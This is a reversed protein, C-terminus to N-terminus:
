QGNPFASARRIYDQYQQKFVPSDPVSYHKRFQEYTMNKPPSVKDVVRDFQKDKLKAASRGIKSGIRSAAKAGIGFGISSAAANLAGQGINVGFAVWDGSKWQSVADHAYALNADSYAKAAEAVYKKALAPNLEVNSYALATDAAMKMVEAYKKSLEMKIIKAQAEPIDAAELARTLEIEYVGKVQDLVTQNGKSIMELYSLNGRITGLNFSDKNASELMAEYVASLEPDNKVQPNNELQRSCFSVVLTRATLDEQEMRSNLIDTSKKQSSSLGAQSKALGSQSEALGSQSNFLNAEAKNKDIESLEKDMAVSAMLMSGFDPMGISVGSSQKQPATMAVPAFSSKALMAPSLGARKLAEVDYSASNLQNNIAMQNLVSQQKKWTAYDVDNTRSQLFLKQADASASTGINILSTMDPM